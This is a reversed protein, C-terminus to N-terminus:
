PSESLIKTTSSFWISFKSKAVAIVFETFYQWMSFKKNVKKQEYINIFENLNM